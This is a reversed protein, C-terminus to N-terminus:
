DTRLQIEVNCLFFPFHDEGVTRRWLGLVSGLPIKLARSPPARGEGRGEGFRSRAPLGRLPLSIM